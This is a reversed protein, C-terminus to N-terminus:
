VKIENQLFQPVGDPSLFKQIFQPVSRFFGFEETTSSTTFFKRQLTLGLQNSHLAADGAPFAQASSGPSLTALSAASALGASLTRESRIDVTPELTIM